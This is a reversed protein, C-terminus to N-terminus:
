FLDLKPQSPGWFATMANKTEESERAIRDAREVDDQAQQEDQPPLTASQEFTDFDLAPLRPEEKTLDLPREIVTPEMDIARATAVPAEIPRGTDDLDLFATRAENIRQLTSRDIELGAAEGAAVIRRATSRASDIAIQIRAAAAPSLMSGLQKAKSAADRIREVDLNAVGQEMDRLLDRVESNIARVAEVDDQAIRGAIVYLRVRTLTASANFADALKRAEAVAADLESAKDNPCLLGFASKACISRILSGMKSQVKQARTFEDPDEITRETEWKARLKGDATLREREIDTSVYKVNGSISTKLSVLLGPRLTSSAFNTTM